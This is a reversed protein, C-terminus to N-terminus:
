TLSLFPSLKAFKYYYSVSATAYRLLNINSRSECNLKHLNEENRKIFTSIESGITLLHALRVEELEPIDIEIFNAGLLKLKEIFNNLALTIAPNCVQKNWATYIGIKLDSLDKTNYLGSLTPKPQYYTNPDEDDKGAMVYYALALDNASATMPGSV